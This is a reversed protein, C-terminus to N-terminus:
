WDAKCNIVPALYDVIRGTEKIHKQVISPDKYSMPSEDLTDENVSTSFVDEMSEEYEDMTFTNEAWTRSGDRGLGHPASRNWERNGKGEIVMSGEAMNMPVIFRENEHARTAGKRIVLDKFDILNHPSHITDVIDVGLADAVLDGMYRRNEAAYTQAFVMDMLYGEAAEEELYDLDTNRRDEMGEGRDYRVQRLRNLNAEIEEAEFEKRCFEAAVEMDIRGESNTLDGVSAGAARVKDPLGEVELPTIAAENRQETAENQWYSALGNGMARSGSHFVVWPKGTKGAESLEIFHNGGGLTGVQNIGKVPDIEARKCADMFYDKGYEFQKSLGWDYKEELGRSLSYSKQECEQWPFDDVIHYDQDDHGKWAMPVADRIREDIEEDSFDPWEDLKISYMGCGIDVGVVNPIVKETISMSFGIVCGSGPHCDPMVRIPETFAEHNTMEDIQERALEELEDEPLFVKATTYEGEIEVTM